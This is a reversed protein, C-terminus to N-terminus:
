ISCEGGWSNQDAWIYDAQVNILKPIHNGYEDVINEDYLTELEDLTPM